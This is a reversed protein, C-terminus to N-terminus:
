IIPGGNLADNCRLCNDSCVTLEPHKQIISIFHDILSDLHAVRIICSGVTISDFIDICHPLLNNFWNACGGTRVAKVEGNIDKAWRIFPRRGSRKEAVHIATCPFLDVGILAVYSDLEAFREFPLYPKEWDHNVILDSAGKGWALWSTMPHNSRLVDDRLSFSQCTIGLSEYVNSKEILFAPGSYYRDPYLESYNCGNRKPKFDDPPCERANYTFGAMLITEFSEILAEIVTQVGGEVWGFSRLSCHSVIKKGSINLKKFVEIIDQKYVIAM